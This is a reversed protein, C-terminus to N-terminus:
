QYMLFLLLHRSPNDPVPVGVPRLMLNRCIRSPHQGFLAGGHEDAIVKSLLLQRLASALQRRLLVVKLNGVNM